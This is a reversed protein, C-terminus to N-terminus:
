VALRLRSREREQETWADVQERKARLEKGVKVAPFPNQDPPRAAWEEVSRESVDLYLAVEKKTLYPKHSIIQLQKIRERTDEDVQPHPQPPKREALVETVVERIIPRAADFVLKFIDEAM